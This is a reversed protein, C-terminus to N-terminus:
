ECWPNQKTGGEYPYAYGGDLLVDSLLKGNYKIDGLIRFYKDRGPNIITLKKASTLENEVFQKVLLAMIKEEICKGRIEPTDVGRIRVSIGEGILPKWGKINVTVTDGDYNKVYEVNKIDKYVTAADSDFVFVMGLLAIVILIIGLILKFESRITRKKGKGWGTFGKIKMRGNKIVGL